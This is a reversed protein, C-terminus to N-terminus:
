NNNVRKITKEKTDLKTKNNLIKILLDDQSNNWHWYSKTYKM